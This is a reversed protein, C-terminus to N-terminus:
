CGREKVGGWYGMLNLIVRGLWGVWLGRVLLSGEVGIIRRLTRGM